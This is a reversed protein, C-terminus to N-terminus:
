HEHDEMSAVDGPEDGPEVLVFQGM